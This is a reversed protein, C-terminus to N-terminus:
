LLYKRSVYNDRKKGNNWKPKGHFRRFAKESSSRFPANAFFPNFNGNSWLCPQGRWGRSTKTGNRLILGQYSKKLHQFAAHFCDQESTKMVNSLITLSKYIYLAPFGGLQFLQLSPQNKFFLQLLQLIIYKWANPLM